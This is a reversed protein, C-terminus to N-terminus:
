QFLAVLDGEDNMDIIEASLGVFQAAEDGGAGASPAAAAGAESDALEKFVQPYKGRQQGNL